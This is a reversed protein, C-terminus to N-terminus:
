AQVRVYEGPAEGLAPLGGSGPERAPVMDPAQEKVWDIWDVWWTGKTETAASLWAEFAGDPKGGTWFQYKAKAPPNVVGAIHGSGALVYRVPGGFYRAGIFVSRAPAIHDEKTALDYIPITVRGLNLREGGIVMEGATLKNELYCNRLYFAHNAATMRTSDANWALLDFAAPQKGKIYTNVAYSWILDDPRLMNFANAMKSGALFGGQKMEAEVVRIQAEDAFMKLDGAERFDVQTTLLTASSVRRDGQAAMYALTAALLTGGVCYGITSVEREGIAQEIGDLAAFIGERMYADWDKSAHRADPNVWSIVFVTLGQSVMWRIFSKEPNLDLVYFKNIWPPVILIPRRMVEPTSPAYQLLEMLDNRFIVNGPTTAMDVGLKFRSADSQRIKLEGRGAAIDEALMKMGRVLNEGNERFTEKILEPNTALFNAPSLASSMQRLYFAAKEREKPDVDEADEVMTKAWDATVLYAQHLFDFMPSSQWEPAAFRKDVKRPIPTGIPVPTEASSSGFRTLSAGWLGFLQTTLAAQAQMMKAPNAFWSEAVKGMSKFTEVVDEGFSPKVEGTERPKMYAAMAQGSYDILRGMNEALAEFDPIAIPTVAASSEPKAAPPATTASAPRDNDPPASTEVASPRSPAPPKPAEAQGAGSGVSTDSRAGTEDKPSLTPQLDANHPVATASVADSTSHASAPPEGTVPTPKPPDLIVASAKAVFKGSSARVRKDAVIAPIAHAAVPLPEPSPAHFVAEVIAKTDPHAAEPHPNGHGIAARGPRRKRKTTM